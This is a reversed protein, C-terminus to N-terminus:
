AHAIEAYLDPLLFHLWPAMSAIHGLKRTVAEIDQLQLAKHHVSFHKELLPIINAIVHLTHQHGSWPYMLLLQQTHRGIKWVLSSRAMIHPGLGWSPHLNGQHKSDCSTQNSVLWHHQWLHQWGCLFPSTNVHTIWLPPLCGSTMFRSHSPHFMTTHTWQPQHRM